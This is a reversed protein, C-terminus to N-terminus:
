RWGIPYQGASFLFPAWFQWFILLSQYDKDEYGYDFQENLCLLFVGYFFLSIFLSANSLPLLNKVEILESHATFCWAIMVGNLSGFGAICYTVRCLFTTIKSCASRIVSWCHDGGEFTGSFLWSVLQNHCGSGTILLGGVFKSAYPAALKTRWVRFLGQAVGSVFVNFGDALSVLGGDMVNTLFSHVAHLDGGMQPLLSPFCILRRHPLFNCQEARENGRFFLNLELYKAGDRGGLQRRTLHENKGQPWITFFLLLGGTWKKEKKSNRRATQFLGVVIRARGALHWQSSQYAHAATDKWPPHFFSLPPFPAPPSWPAPPSQALFLPGM